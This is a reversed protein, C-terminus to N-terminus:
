MYDSQEDEHLSEQKLNAPVIVQQTRQLQTFASSKSDMM